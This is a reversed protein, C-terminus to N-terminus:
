LSVKLPNAHPINTKSVTVIKFLIRMNEYVVFHNKIVLINSPFSKAICLKM